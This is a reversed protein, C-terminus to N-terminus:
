LVIHKLIEKLAPAIDPRRLGVAINAHLFGVKDGCDFRQCEARVAHFPMKGILKAMADTLQVENGAGREQSDLVSFIEPQLIYRGIVCLTSPAKEPDPKEVVAKVETINGDVKGPVVVGYRKTEERTKEEAAVICGGGIKNYATIMQSICGPKGVMLDDPLLVAFPEDGVFHRACWVAHGLGLPKQQRVFGVSGTPPLMELLSNLIDTKDRAALQAELEYAHDFHDSIVTKGRGTIFVFQEIGAERAEEVAYQVVPKDVVPLMEKPVAKTAPLFRTGLGAVPLVAKRVPKFVSVVKEV